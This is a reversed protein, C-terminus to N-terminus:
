FMSISFGRNNAPAGTGAPFDYESADSKVCIKFPKTNTCVTNDPAGAAIGANAAVNVTKACRFCLIYIIWYFCCIGKVIGVDRFYILMSRKRVYSETGYNSGLQKTCNLYIQAARNSDTYYYYHYYKLINKM